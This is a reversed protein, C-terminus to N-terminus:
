FCCHVLKALTKLTPNRGKIANYMTSRALEAKKAASVKNVIELHAEIVELVGETDNNKLCEWMAKAIFNEDLLKKTPSYNKFGHKDKPNMKHIGGKLSKKPKHLIKTKDM